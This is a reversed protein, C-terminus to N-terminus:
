PIYLHSFTATFSSSVNVNVGTVRDRVKVALALSAVALDWTLAEKGHLVRNPEYGEANLKRCSEGEVQPSSSPSAGLRLFYRTFM